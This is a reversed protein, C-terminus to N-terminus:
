IVALATRNTNEAAPFRITVASSFPLIRTNSAALDKIGLGADNQQGQRLVGHGTGPVSPGAVRKLNLKGRVAPTDQCGVTSEDAEPVQVVSKCAARGVGNGGCADVGLGIQRGLQCGKGGLTPQGNPREPAPASQRFAEALQCKFKTRVIDIQQAGILGRDLSQNHPCKIFGVQRGPNIFEPLQNLQHGVM